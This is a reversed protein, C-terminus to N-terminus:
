TIGNDENMIPEFDDEFDEEDETPEFDNEQDFDVEPVRPALYFTLTTKNLKKFTIQVKLPTDTKISFAIKEQLDIVVSFNKVVRM